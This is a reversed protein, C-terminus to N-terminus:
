HYKKTIFYGLEERELIFSFLSRPIRFSDKVLKNCLGEREKGVIARRTRIISKEFSEALILVYRDVLIEKNVHIIRNEKNKKVITEKKREPRM